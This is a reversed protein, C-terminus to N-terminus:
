SADRQEAPEGAELVAQVDADVTVTGPGTDTGFVVFDLLRLRHLAYDGQQRSRAVYCHSSTAAPCSGTRSRAASASAGARPCATRSARDAADARRNFGFVTSGLADVVHIGVVPADLDRRARLRDAPPDADGQEVNDVREGAANELWADVM